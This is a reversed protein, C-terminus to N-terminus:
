ALVAMVGLAILYVLGGIAALVALACLTMGIAAMLFLGRFMDGGVGM